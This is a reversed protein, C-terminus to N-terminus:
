KKWTSPSSRWEELSEIADTSIYNSELARELLTSYNTLTFLECNANEFNDEAISFGYSFIAGMGVVNLGAERLDAVANLSSKGSSILDEIVVVNQGAEVTGEISNNLGHSKAQARVYCFPLELEQAVLAGLAIGGTAVGAIIDPKSYNENIEKSFCDRIYNRIEPYSLTKRNDCYIPSNWGSAWQFPNEPQLKIAKIKLLFEAVKSASNETKLM